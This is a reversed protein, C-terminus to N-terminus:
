LVYKILCLTYEYAVVHNVTVEQLIAKAAVDKTRELAPRNHERLRAPGQAAEPCVM